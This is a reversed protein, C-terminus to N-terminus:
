NSANKISKLLLILDQDSRKGEGTQSPLYISAKRTLLFAQLLLDLLGEGTTLIFYIVMLCSQLIRELFFSLISRLRPHAGEDERPHLPAPTPPEFRPGQRAIKM